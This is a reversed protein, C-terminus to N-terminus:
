PKQKKAQEAIVKGLAQTDEESWTAISQDQKDIKSNIFDAISQLTIPQTIQTMEQPTLFKRAILNMDTTQAPTPSFTIKEINQHVKYNDRFNKIGFMSQYITGNLEFAVQINAGIDGSEIDQPALPTFQVLPEVKDSLNNGTIGEIQIILNRIVNPKGQAEPLKSQQAWIGTLTDIVFTQKYLKVNYQIWNHLLRPLSSEINIEKFIHISEYSSIDNKPSPFIVNFLPATYGLIIPVNVRPTNVVLLEIHKNSFDIPKKEIEHAKVLTQTLIKTKESLPSAGFAGTHPFRVFPKNQPGTWTITNIIMPIPDKAKGKIKVFEQPQTIFMRALRFFEDYRQSELQIHTTKSNLLIATSIPGEHVGQASIIFNVDLSSFVENILSQNSGGAYCTSYNLFAMNLNKNFFKMLQFFNEISLGGVRASEPMLQSHRWSSKGQLKKEDNKINAQYQNMIKKPETDDMKWKQYDIVVNQWYTLEKKDHELNKRINGIPQRPSGHGTLHMIWQTDEKLSILNGDKKQPAFLSTLHTIFEEEDIQISLQTELQKLLADNTLHTSPTIVNPNFGCARAQQNKTLSAANIFNADIYQKPIVLVLPSSKHFYYTFNKTDFDIDSILILEDPRISKLNYSKILDTAFPKKQQYNLTQLKESDNNNIKQRIKLINELMNSTMIIPVHKTYLAAISVNTLAGSESESHKPDLIIIADHTIFDKKIAINQEIAQNLNTKNLQPAPAPQPIPQLVEAKVVPQVSPLAAPAPQQIPKAPTFQPAPAPQPIPKAPIPQKPQHIPVPQVTALASNNLTLLTQTDKQNNSTLTAHLNIGAELLAQTQIDSLNFSKVFNIFEPALTNNIVVKNSPMQTRIINLASAYSGAIPNQQQPPTQAPQSIQQAIPKQPAAIPQPTTRVPSANPNKMARPNMSGISFLLVFSLTKKFISM